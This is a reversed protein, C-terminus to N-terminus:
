EAIGDLRKIDSPLLGLWRIAPVTLNHAEFSM